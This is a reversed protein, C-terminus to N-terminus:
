FIVPNNNANGAKQGRRDAKMRTDVIVAKGKQQKANKARQKRGSKNNVVYIKSPKKEKKATGKYLETLMRMKQKDDIDTQDAIANAQQKMRDMRRKVRKQKRLKAEVIRKIPRANLAIERARIAVLDEKTVTCGVNCKFLFLLVLASM